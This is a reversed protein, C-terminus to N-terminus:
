PAPDASDMLLGGRRLRWAELEVDIRTNLDTLQRLREAPTLDPEPPAYRHRLVAARARASAVRKLGYLVTVPLVVLSPLAGLIAFGELSDVLRSHFSSITSITYALAVVGAVIFAGAIAGVVILPRLRPSAEHEVLRALKAALQRELAVPDTPSPLASM